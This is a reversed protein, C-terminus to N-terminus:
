IRATALHAIQAGLEYYLEKGARLGDAEPRTVPLPLDAERIAGTVLEATVRGFVTGPAIGRGNYGCFGIVNRALKHFRPLHNSTMGISGYWEAAFEVAGLRPFLKHLTRRAWARHVAAGTGRLAGVSGLILHGARDFRVSVMVQRTDWAGQREPLIASRQQPSLPRTAFNFYPVHVQEARIEAWPASTYADTAVVVWDATVSGAATRVTWRAGNEAVGQVPSGTMVDAGAGIAVRALGRAYALPQITGARLDLLAGAYARSGLKAATEDADLLRVPAGRALWQEARHELERVGAAGVACHLTGAREPECAIQHKQILEFVARPADGLLALLREGHEPGLAAPLDSPMVWMGANVLGVNRGSGGFGIGAGELVIVRAGREALHLASSLGTYGGGIVVVDATRDGSLPGTPPAPPATRAWLGHSRPDSCLPDDRRGTKAM